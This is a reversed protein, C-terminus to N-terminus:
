GPRRAGASRMIVFPFGGAAGGDAPRPRVAHVNVALLPTLPIGLILRRVAHLHRRDDRRAAVGRRLPRDGTPSRALRDTVRATRRCWGGAISSWRGGDVLLCIAILLV